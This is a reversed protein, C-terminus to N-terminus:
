PMEPIVVSGDSYIIITMDGMYPVLMMIAEGNLEAMAAGDESVYVVLSANAAAKQGFGMSTLVNESVDLCVNIAPLGKKVLQFVAANHTKQKASPGAFKGTEDTGGLFFSVGASVGEGGGANVMEVLINALSEATIGKQNNPAITANIAELIENKNM